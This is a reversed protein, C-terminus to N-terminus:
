VYPYIRFFNILVVQHFYLDFWLAFAMRTSTLQDRFFVNLLMLWFEYRGFSKNKEKGLNKERSAILSGEESPFKEQNEHGSLSLLFM